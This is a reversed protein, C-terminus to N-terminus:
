ETEECICRTATDWSGHMPKVVRFVRAGVRIQDGIAAQSNWPLTVTFPTVVGAREAIVLEGPRSTKAVRCRTTEVKVATETLGGRGDPTNTVRWVECADPLAATQAERFIVLQEDTLM